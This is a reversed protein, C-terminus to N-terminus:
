ERKVFLKSLNKFVDSWPAIVAKCVVFIEWQSYASSKSGISGVVELELEVFEVGERSQFPQRQIHVLGFSCGEKAGVWWHKAVIARCSNL